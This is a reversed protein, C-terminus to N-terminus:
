RIALLIKMGDTDRPMTQSCAAGAALGRYHASHPKGGALAAVASRSGAGSGARSSLVRLLREAREESTLLALICWLIRGGDLQVAPLLNFAALALNLGAFCYAGETGLGAAMRAALLNVAPGALAAAIQQWCGLPCRASLRMEAGVCTIRLATVRGGLARIVLWHGLEHLACACFAMLLVGQEDLYYLAAGLLLAGASIEVRKWRLM